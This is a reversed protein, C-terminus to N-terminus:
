AGMDKKKKVRGTATEKIKGCGVVEKELDNGMSDKQFVSKIIDNKERGLYGKEEEKRTFARENKLVSTLQEM